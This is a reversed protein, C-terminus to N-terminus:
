RNVVKKLLFLKNNLEKLVKDKNIEEKGKLKSNLDELRNEYDKSKEEYANYQRKLSDTHINNLEEIEEIHKKVHRELNKNADATATELQVQLRTIEDRLNSITHKYEKRIKDEVITEVSNLNIVEILDKNKNRTTVINLVNMAVLDDIDYERIHFM